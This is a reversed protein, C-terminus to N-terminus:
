SKTTSIIDDDQSVQSDPYSAFKFKFLQKANAEIEKQRRKCTKFNNHSLLALMKTLQIRIIFLCIVTLMIKLMEGFVAVVRYIRLM